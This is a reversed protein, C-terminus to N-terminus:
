QGGVKKDRYARIAKSAQAQDEGDANEGRVLDEPNAIMASLTSNTGCGYNASTRAQFDTHSRHSFDPCGPVSASKRTVVVRMRGAPVYGETVPAKDSVLLGYSAVINEVAAKAVPSAAYSPDDISIRDGYGLDLADFWGSLRNQEATSLGGAGTNLDLVFNAKSVVPQRESYVSRNATTSGCATVSLGLATILAMSVIRM